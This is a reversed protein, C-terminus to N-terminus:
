VHNTPNDERNSKSPFHNFGEVELRLKEDQNAQKRTIRKSNM